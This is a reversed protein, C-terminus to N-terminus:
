KGTRFIDSMIIKQHTKLSFSRERPIAQLSTLNKDFNYDVITVAADNGINIDAVNMETWEPSGGSGTNKYFLLRGSDSSFGGTGVVIEKMGDNDIDAIAPVSFAGAHIGDFYDGVPKWQQFRSGASNKYLHLTGHKNGAIMDNQGDNDMDSFVTRIFPVIKVGSINFNEETDETCNISQYTYTEVPKPPPKPIPLTKQEQAMCSAIIAALSIFAAVILYRTFFPNKM